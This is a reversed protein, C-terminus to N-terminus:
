ETKGILLEVPVLSGNKHTLYVEHPLNNKSQGRKSQLLESIEPWHSTDGSGLNTFLTGLMEDPTYGLIDEAGPSFSEIRGENDAIVIGDIMNDTISKLYRGTERLQSEATKSKKIASSVERLLLNLAAAAKGIEDNSNSALTYAEANQTDQSASIMAQTLRTLPMFINYVILLLAVAM